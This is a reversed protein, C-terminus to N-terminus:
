MWRAFLDLAGEIDDRFANDTTEIKMALLMLRRKCNEVLNVILKEEKEEVQLRDISRIVLDQLVKVSM